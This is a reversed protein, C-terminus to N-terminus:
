VGGICKKSLKICNEQPVLSNGSRLLIFDIVRTVQNNEWINLLM